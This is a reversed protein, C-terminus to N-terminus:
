AVKSKKILRKVLVFWVWLVVSLASLSYWQVAYGRHKDVDTNLAAWDRVLGDSIEVGTINVPAETQRVVFPKLTLSSWQAFEAISASQWLRDDQKPKDARALEYSQVLEAQSLGVISVTQDIVNLQPLKTRDAVDRAIWGRNILVVAEGIKLPTLVHFGAKGKHTRNDIFITKDSLLVGTLKVRRKDHTVASVESISIAPLAKGQEIQVKLEAKEDGRRTQWNGLSLASWAAVIAVITPISLRLM